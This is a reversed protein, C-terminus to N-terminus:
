CRGGHHHSGESLQSAPRPRAHTATRRLGMLGRREFAVAWSLYEEVSLDYRRCAEALDLLGGSVAAVVLAKRRPSWHMEHAAPLDIRELRFPRTDDSVRHQKAM